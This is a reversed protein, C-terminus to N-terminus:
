RRCPCPCSPIAPSWGWSRRIGTPRYRMSSRKGIGDPREGAIEAIMSELGARRISFQAHGRVAGEERRESEPIGGGEQMLQVGWGGGQAERDTGETTQDTANYLYEQSMWKIWRSKFSGLSLFMDNTGGHSLTSDQSSDNITM